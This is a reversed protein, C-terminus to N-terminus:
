IFVKFPFRMLVALLLILDYGSKGADSDKGNLTIGEDM